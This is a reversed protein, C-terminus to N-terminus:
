ALHRFDAYMAPVQFSSPVAAAPPEGARPVRTDKGKGKGGGGERGRGADSADEGANDGAAKNRAAETAPALAGTERTDPLNGRPPPMLSLVFDLVLSTAAPM